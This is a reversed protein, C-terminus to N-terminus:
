ALLNNLKKRARSLILKIANESKNYVQAIEKIKMEHKYKKIIIDKYNEPLRDLASWILGADLDKAKIDSQFLDLDSNYLLIDKKKRYYNLLINHSIRLLFTYYSSNTLKFSAITRLARLFSEQCLDHAIDKNQVRKLFYYYISYYYKSYLDSFASIDAQAAIVLQRDEYRNIFLSKTPLIFLSELLENLNYKNAGFVDILGEMKYSIDMNGIWKYIQHISLISNTSVNTWYNLFDDQFAEKKYQNTFIPNIELFYQVNNNKDCLPAIHIDQVKIDGNVSKNQVKGIFPKKEVYISQWLDDYFGRNMRGGWLQGPKKGVMQALSYGKSKQFSQNGYLIYSKPDAFFVSGRASEFGNKIIELSSVNLQAM